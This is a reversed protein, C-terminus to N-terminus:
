VVASTSQDNRASPAAATDGADAITTEQPVAFNLTRPQIGFRGALRELSLADEVKCRGVSHERIGCRAFLYTEALCAFTENRCSFGFNDTSSYDPIHVMGGEVVAIGRKWFGPYSSPEINLPQACDIVISNERPLEPTVRAAPESTLLVTIDANRIDSIDGSYLAGSLDTFEREARQRNRGILILRYQKQALLRTAAAGVSGTCGVIAIRLNSADTGSLYQSAAVVNSRVIAATLSNGNTVTVNQPLHQTMTLGGGTAPATLAGLGIVKAGRQVALHAAELVDHRAEPRLMREPLRNICIVEGHAATSRFRVESSIVPPLAQLKQRFDQTDDSYTRLFGGVGVRDADQLSRLHVLFAFWPSCNRLYPIM